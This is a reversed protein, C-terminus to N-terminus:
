RGAHLVISSGILSWHIALTSINVLVLQDMSNQADLEGFAMFVPYGTM